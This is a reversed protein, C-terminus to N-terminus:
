LSRGTGTVQSAGELHLLMDPNSQRLRPELSSGTGTVQCAGELDLLRGLKSRMLRTELSTGTGTVQSAGDLVSLRDRFEEGLDMHLLRASVFSSAVCSHGSGLHGAM